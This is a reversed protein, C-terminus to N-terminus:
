IGLLVSLVKIILFFILDISPLFSFSRILLTPTCFISPMPGILGHPISYSVSYMFVAGLLGCCIRFILSLTPVQYTLRKTDRIMLGNVLM